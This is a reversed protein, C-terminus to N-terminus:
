MNFLTEVYSWIIHLITNLNFADLKISHEMGHYNMKRIHISKFHSWQYIPFIVTYLSLIISLNLNKAVCINVISTAKILFSLYTALFLNM